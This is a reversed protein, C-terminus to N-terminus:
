KTKKKKTLSASKIDLVPLEAEVSSVGNLFMDAIYSARTRTDTWKISKDNMTGDTDYEKYWCYGCDKSKGFRDRNPVVLAALKNLEATTLSQKTTEYVARHSSIDYGNPMVNGHIGHQDSKNLFYHMNDKISCYGGKVAVIVPFSGIYIYEPIGSKDTYVNGVIFGKTVKTGITNSKATIKLAEQYEKGDELFCKMQTHNKAFIWKGGLKGGAQIGYKLIAQLMQDERIDFYTMDDANYVKYARGGEMRLDIDDLYLNDMPTNPRVTVYKDINDLEPNRIWDTEFAKMYKSWRTSEVAIQKQVFGAWNVASEKAKQSEPDFFFTPKIEVTSNVARTSKKSALGVEKLIKINSM